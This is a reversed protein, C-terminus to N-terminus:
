LDLAYDELLREFDRVCGSPLLDALAATLKGGGLKIPVKKLLADLDAGRFSGGHLQPGLQAALAQALSLGQGVKVDKLYLHWGQLDMYVERGIKDALEDYPTRGGSSGASSVFSALDLWGKVADECAGRATLSRRGPQM